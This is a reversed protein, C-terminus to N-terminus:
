IHELKNSSAKGLGLNTLLSKALSRMHLVFEPTGLQSSAKVYCDWITWDSGRSDSKTLAAASLLKHCIDFLNKWQGLERLLLIQRRRMEWAGKAVKSDPGLMPNRYLELSEEPSGKELVLRHL